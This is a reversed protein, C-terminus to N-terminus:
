PEAHQAAGEAILAEMAVNADSLLWEVDSSELFTSMGMAVRLAVVVHENEFLFGYVLLGDDGTLDKLKAIERFIAVAAVYDDYNESFDLAALTWTQTEDDYSNRGPMALGHPAPAMLGDVWAGITSDSAVRERISEPTYREGYYSSKSLWTLVEEDDSPDPFASSLFEDLRHRSLRVRAYLQSPESM